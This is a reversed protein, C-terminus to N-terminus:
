ASVPHAFNEMEQLTPLSLSAGKRTTTIAAARVAFRVADEFHDGRVMRSALAGNFCDGAAVTDISNVDPAPLKGRTGDFAWAVGLEGMTVIAGRLGLSQLSRAAEVGENLNSPVQGLIAGAEHANPTLIDFASYIEPTWPTEPAPAPDMIVPVGANRALRAAEFSAPLGVENQLLVAGSASISRASFLVRAATLFGNAGSSLRIVNGGEPGVDIFAMGTSAEGIEALEPKVNQRRLEEAAELGFADGGIAGILTVDAGLRAAAVAQNAGKGGLSRITERVAITEGIRPWRDLYSTLDINISGIVIVSKM